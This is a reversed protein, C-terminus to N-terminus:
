PNQLCYAVEDLGAGVLLQWVHCVDRTYNNILLQSYRKQQIEPKATLILAEVEQTCCVEVEVLM